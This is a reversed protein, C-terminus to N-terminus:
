YRYLQFRQVGFEGPPLRVHRGQHTQDGNLRRGPLWEGAEYRGEEVREFGLRGQGGAPEVTFTVGQGALLYDEGGLWILVAGHSSPDQADRATWPDITTATFVADGLTATLPTLDAEGAFSVPSGFGAIRQEAQAALVLPAISELLGYLGAIRKAEAETADEIAFPSFGIAELHGISRLANAAIRTDSPRNAEPVFLPNGSAVYGDAIAAFNPFYIDPAIFDISPAGDRWERALHALPGGSPYDGPKVGPRGQAGNVFLPLPYERKGAAAVAEVYHAYARAMAREDALLDRGNGGEKAFPLFGVENEVQVMIVTHREGDVESLHRMLAAFARADADRANRSYASIIEQARGEAGTTRPFRVTDRKVWAPAYSSMSNKWTGFWLLVLRMDHARADELLWDVTAFDFRGEEPEVLEWYVPALVTNLNMAQLKPWHARMAERNSAESNGLEGGLVLFPAGDVILQTAEGRRELHPIDQAAAPAALLLAFLSLLWRM